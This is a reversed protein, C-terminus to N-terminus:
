GAPSNVPRVKQIVERVKTWRINPYRDNDLPDLKPLGSFMNHLYQMGQWPPFVEDSRMLLRMVKIIGALRGLGGARMLKFQEGTVDTSIQALDRASVVDGAIRLFRPTSPDLAARATFEATNEITTFDLLQDADEWYLVRHLKFLIVPAPGVLLDTFMGNLVSTAAVPATDLQRHFKRRLDFNRNSGDRLKTFDVAYDSPIFRPVGAKVAAHLLQAQADVIVDELGSLASVICSASSCARKLEEADFYDVISVSAGGKCLREVDDAASDRRVLARVNADLRLLESIILGGLRGTAGAIVIPDNM